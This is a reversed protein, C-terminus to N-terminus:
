SSSSRHFIRNFFQGWRLKKEQCESAPAFGLSKDSRQVALSQPEAGPARVNVTLFSKCSDLSSVKWPAQAKSPPGWDQLFRQYDYNPCPHQNTCGWQEYAGQYNRSNIKDLFSKAVRKEPYNNFLLYGVLFVALVSGVAILIRRIIRGRHEEEIGYTQLYSGV